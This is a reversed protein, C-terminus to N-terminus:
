IQMEKGKVIQKINNIILEIDFLALLIAGAPQAAYVYNMPYGLAPMLRDAMKACFRISWVAYFVAFAFVILNIILRVSERGRVPLADQIMTFSAHEYHRYLIPLGLFILWIYLYRSVQETWTLSSSLLYRTVVQTVTLATLIIFLVMIIFTMFKQLMDFLKKM